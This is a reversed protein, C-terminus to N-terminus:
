AILRVALISINNIYRVVEIDETMCAKILDTNYFLYLIPSVLLGQLIGTQILASPATFEQLKLTITHNSLFSM